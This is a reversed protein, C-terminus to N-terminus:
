PTSRQRCLTVRNGKPNFNVWTSNARMLPIGRGSPRSLNQNVIPNPVDDPKFGSGQDEVQLLVEAPTVLYTVKVHTDPQGRNGHQIANMVAEQLALHVAFKDRGPYGFFRMWAELREFVPVMEDLTKILTRQANKELGLDMIASGTHYCEGYWYM